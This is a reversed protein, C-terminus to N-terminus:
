EAISVERLDDLIAVTMLEFFVFLQLLGYQGVVGVLSNLQELLMVCNCRLDKDFATAEVLWLVDSHFDSKNTKATHTLPHRAANQGGSM